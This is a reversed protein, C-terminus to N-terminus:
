WIVTVLGTGVIASDRTILPLGLQLATAVIIRDPMDPVSARSISQLARITGSDLAAIAYNAGPMQFVDLADRVAVTDIRGKEGLYVIEVLVVGPVHVVTKGRDAARCALRAKASLRPSKQLHWILAHTDTVYQSM